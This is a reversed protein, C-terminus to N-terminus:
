TLWTHTRTQCSRAPSSTLHTRTSTLPSSVAEGQRPRRTRPAYRPSNDTYPHPTPLTTLINTLPQRPHTPSPPLHLVAPPTPADLAACRATPPQSLSLSLPLPPAPPVVLAACRATNGIFSCNVFSLGVVDYLAAIAGGAIAQSLGFPPTPHTPSPSAWPSPQPSPSAM